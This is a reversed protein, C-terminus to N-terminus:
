KISREARKGHIYGLMFLDYAADTTFEDPRAEEIDHIQKVMKLTLVSSYGTQSGLLQMTENKEYVCQVCNQTPQDTETLKSKILLLNIFDLLEIDNTENCLKTISTIYDRKNM